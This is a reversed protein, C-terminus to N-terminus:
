KGSWDKDFKAEFGACPDRGRVLALDNDQRQEGSRSFNASGTRLLAHDVCYGKLHMLEGGAAKTRAEVNKAGALAPAQDYAGVKEAMEPDRWIRVRVGRAGALKLAEAIAADTLVYAAIDITEGASNLAEVDIKELDEEPAYHLEVTLAPAAVRPASLDGIFWGLALTAIFGSAASIRTM